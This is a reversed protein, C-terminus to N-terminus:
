VNSTQKLLERDELHNEDNNCVFVPTLTRKEFGGLIIEKTDLFPLSKWSHFKGFFNGKLRKFDYYFALRKSYASVRKQFPMEPEFLKRSKRSIPGASWFFFGFIGFIM